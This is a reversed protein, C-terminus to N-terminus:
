DALELQHARLKQRVEEPEEGNKLEEEHVLDAAITNPILNRAQQEETGFEKALDLFRQKTNGIFENVAEDIIKKEDRQKVPLIEEDYLEGIKDEDYEEDM